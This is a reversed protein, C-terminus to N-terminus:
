QVGGNIIQIQLADAIAGRALLFANRMVDEPRVLTYWLVLKADKVRFRFLAEMSVREGGIFVPINLTFREPVSLKGGGVTAKVDETYKFQVSGDQMRVGGGFSVDTKGQLDRSVELMSAPTPDTIDISNQELFEAFTQQDVHKNNHGTWREWEPSKQLNLTLTHQGWRPAVQGAVHYDLVATVSTQPEYAFVRSNADSFLKYYQIFSPSDLVRVAQKVRQPADNHENYIFGSLGQVKFGEPIVVYPINGGPTQQATAPLTGLNILKQVASSDLEM